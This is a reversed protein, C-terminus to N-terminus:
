AAEPPPLERVDGAPLDVDHELADALRHVVILQHEHKAQINQQPKGYAQALFADATSVATRDDESHLGRWYAENVAKRWAEDTEYNARLIERGSVLAKADSDRRARRVSASKQAAKRSTEARQTKASPDHFWCWGNARPTANCDSGDKRHGQCTARKAREREAEMVAM